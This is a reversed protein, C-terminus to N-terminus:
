RVAISGWMGTNILMNWISKMAQGTEENVFLSSRSGCPTGLFHPRMTEWTEAVGSGGWHPLEMELLLPIAVSKPITGDPYTPSSDWTCTVLIPTTNPAYLPVDIREADLTAITHFKEKLVQVSKLVEEGGDYPCTIFANRFCVTHDLGKYGCEHSPVTFPIRRDIKGTRVIPHWYPYTSVVPGFQDAVSLLFDESESRKASPINRGVLYMLAEDWNRKTAENARFAMNGIARFVLLACSVLTKHL